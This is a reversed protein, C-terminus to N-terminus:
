YFLGGDPSGTERKSKEGKRRKLRDAQRNREVYYSRLRVVALWIGLGLSVLALGQNVMDFMTGFSVSIAGSAAIYDTTSTSM